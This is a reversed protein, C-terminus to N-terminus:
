GSVPTLTALVAELDPALPSVFVLHEGTDPHAFALETAHLFPRDLGLVPRRGGYTVDGVLPHGVSALHVRIQHTRGTELRCTLRALENPRDFRTAVEYETRARRGSAVVAMKLPDRPDRGIPADIIGHPAAPIGWVLADYRRSAAHTSFQEVLRHYAAETRAVVLLGSSGADLRHVIGPRLPEGVTAIEPFEALLGNVLTGTPNGAGPHVVLGAPKDVVICSADAHVVRFEVAPDAVPAEDRPISTPDIEVMRGETLRVKGSTALQGDVRVAGTTIMATAASRTVDALLAVVRDLREGALAPPVEETIM